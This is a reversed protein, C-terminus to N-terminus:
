RVTIDCTATNGNNLYITIQATGKGIATVVGENNVTAVKKNRSVWATVRATSTGGRISYSIKQTKGRKVVYESKKLRIRANNTRSARITVDAALQQLQKATECGIGDVNGTAVKKFITSYITCAALYSGTKSAHKKDAIYLDLKPLVKEARRFAVGAPAVATSFEDAMKDYRDILQQQFDDVGSVQESRKQYIINEKQPAWNQYLIIQAGAQRAMPVLKGLAKTMRSEKKFITPVEDQFIVYDWTKTQLAKFLKQSELQNARKQPYAWQYLSHGTITYSEVCANMGASQCLQKVMTPMGNCRTHSNGVFLIRPNKKVTKVLKPRFSAFFDTAQARESLPTCLLFLSLLMILRVGRRGSKNM